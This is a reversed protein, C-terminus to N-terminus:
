GRGKLAYTASASAASALNLSILYRWAGDLRFFWLALDSCRSMPGELFPAAAAVARLLGMSADSALLHPLYAGAAFPLLVASLAGARARPGFGTGGAGRSAVESWCSAVLAAAALSPLLAALSSALPGLSPLQASPDFGRGQLHFLLLCELGLAAAFASLAWAMPREMAVVTLWIPGLQTKPSLIKDSTHPRSRRWPRGAGRDKSSATMAHPLAPVM